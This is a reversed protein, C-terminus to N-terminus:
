PLFEFMFDVIKRGHIANLGKLIIGVLMHIVGLIVALKM